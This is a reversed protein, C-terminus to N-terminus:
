MYVRERCSARGIEMRGTKDYYTTTNGSKRTRGTVAGSRDYQTATQGEALAAVGVLIAVVMALRMDTGEKNMM